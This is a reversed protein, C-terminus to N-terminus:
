HDEITQDERPNGTPIQGGYEPCDIWGHGFAAGMGEDPYWEHEKGCRPCEVVPPDVSFSEQEMYHNGQYSDCHVCVNGWVDRDQTKSYVREVQEFQKALEEGHDRDLHGVKPWVVPIERGCNWCETEWSLVSVGKDDTM